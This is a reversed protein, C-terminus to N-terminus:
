WLKWWAGSCKEIEELFEAKYQSLCITLPLFTTPSLLPLKLSEMIGMYASAGEDSGGGDAISHLTAKLNRRFKRDRKIKSLIRERLEISMQEQEKAQKLELKKKELYNM